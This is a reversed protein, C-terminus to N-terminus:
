RCRETTHTLSCKLKSNSKLRKLFFNSNIYELYIMYYLNYTFRVAFFFSFCRLFFFRFLFFLKAKRSVSKIVKQVNSHVHRCEHLTFRFVIYLIIEANKEEKWENEGDQERRIPSHTQMCMTWTYHTNFICFICLLFILKDNDNSIIM